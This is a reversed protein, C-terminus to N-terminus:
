KKAGAAELARLAIAFRQGVDLTGAATFHTRTPLLTEATATDVYACRPDKAAIAQQAAIVQPVFPNKDNGFHTNVGLLTLLQPADLDHRLAALMTSLAREYDPADQATADSEGQVWVLARLRLDIGQEHAAVIAAKTEEVLARYCGGGDGADQPNWDTRMGTGSFAVKVIALPQNEQRHLERALGMEPGFGGEPKRFNGYQRALKFVAEGGEKSDRPIPNGVPQTQLHTWHRASTSDHEDPPPDGCRWWFLVDKDASDAPLEGAYADFGVANSQGAVLILNRPEGAQAACAAALVLFVTFQLLWHKM